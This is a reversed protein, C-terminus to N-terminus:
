LFRDTVLINIFNFLYKIKYFCLRLPRKGLRLTSYKGNESLVGVLLMSGVEAVAHCGDRGDVFQQRAVLYVATLATVQVGFPVQTLLSAYAGWFFAPFTTTGL